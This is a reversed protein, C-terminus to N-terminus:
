VQRVRARCEWWSDDIPNVQRDYLNPHSLLAQAQPRTMPFSIPAALRDYWDVRSVHFGLRAYERIRKPVVSRSEKTHQSLIRYPGIVAGWELVALVWSLRDIANSSFRRVVRRVPELLMKRPTRMYVWALFIGGPKIRSALSQVGSSPEPLHHLVGLSYALDFLSAQFPLQYLDAQVIHLMPRGSARAHAADVAWSIDVGIVEIGREALSVAHRGAGCGADLALMGSSLLLNIPQLFRDFNEANYDAYQTWEFGFRDITSLLSEDAESVPQESHVFLKGSRDVRAFYDPYRKRLAPM